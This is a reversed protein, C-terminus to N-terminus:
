CHCSTPGPPRPSCRSAAAWAQGVLGCEDIGLADICAVVTRAHAEMSYAFDNPKDSYGHGLFDILLSRRGRLPPQVAAPLLEGTSSCQWGHLWLLPPDAGPIELYRISAREEPLFVAKV